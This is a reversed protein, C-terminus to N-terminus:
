ARPPGCLTAADHICAPRPSHTVTLIGGVPAPRCAVTLWSFVAARGASNMASVVAAQNETGPARNERWRTVVLLSYDTAVGLGILAILFEVIISVPTLYTLGGVLLFTTPIAIAAMLLPLLALFSAFVYTPVLLAGAGGLVVEALASKGHTPGGAALQSLGTMGTTWGRPAAAAAATAIRPTLDRGFGGGPAPPTFVLGFATRGDRTAFRPDGTTAWDALRSGPLAGAAASLV